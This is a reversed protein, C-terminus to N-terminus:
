RGPFGPQFHVGGGDSSTAPVSTGVPGKMMADIGPVFLGYGRFNRYNGNPDSPHAPDKYTKCTSYARDCGPKMTFTDGSLVAEPMPEFLDIAGHVAGVDDNRIQRTFGANAGTLGVLVGTNYRGVAETTIGSVTFARRSAVATVTATISVADVDVKCRADGFKKVGCAVSYTDVIPQSLLQTLGRLETKYVNDSDYTLEGLFGARLYCQGDDPAAWNLFFLTVPANNLLEAQVDAATLDPLTITDPFSGQVSSNDVSMDASSSIDAGSINAGAIYVGALVGATVTIDLDHDTGLIVDGNKKTIKWCLALTTDEGRLHALLLSSIEKSM